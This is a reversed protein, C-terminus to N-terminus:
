FDILAMEKTIENKGGCRRQPFDIEVNKMYLMILLTAGLFLLCIFTTLLIRLCRNKM